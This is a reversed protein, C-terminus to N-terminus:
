LFVVRWLGSFLYVAPFMGGPRRAYRGRQSQDTISMSQGSNEGAIVLTVLLKGIPAECGRLLNKTWTLHSSKVRVSARTLRDARM